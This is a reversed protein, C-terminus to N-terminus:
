QGGGRSRTHIKPGADRQFGGEDDQPRGQFNGRGGRDPGGRSGRARQPRGMDGGRMPPGDFGGRPPGSGRGMGRMMGEPPEGGRGGRYDGRGGSGRARMPPPGHGRRPPEMDGPPGGKMFEDRNRREGDM